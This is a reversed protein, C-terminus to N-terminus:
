PMTVYTYPPPYREPNHMQNYRALITLWRPFDGMNISSLQYVLVARERESSLVEAYSDLYKALAGIAERAVANDTDLLVSFLKTYIENRPFSALSQYLRQDRLHALLEDKVAGLGVTDVKGETVTFMGLAVRQIFHQLEHRLLADLEGPPFKGEKPIRFAITHIPLGGFISLDEEPRYFGASGKAAVGPSEEHKGRDYLELYDQEDTCMLVLVPGQMKPHILGRATKGDAIQSFIQAGVEARAEDETVGEQQRRQVGALFGDHWQRAFKQARIYNDLAQTFYPTFARPAGGLIELIKEPVPNELGLSELYEELAVATKAVAVNEGMSTFGPPGDYKQISFGSFGRELESM